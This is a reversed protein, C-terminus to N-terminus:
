EHAQGEPQSHHRVPAHVANQWHNKQQSFKRELGCTSIAYAGYRQLCASLTKRAPAYRQHGQKSMFEQMALQWARMNTLGQMNKHRAAM